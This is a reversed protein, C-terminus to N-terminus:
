MYKACLLGRSSYLTRRCPVANLVTRSLDDFIVFEFQMEETNM